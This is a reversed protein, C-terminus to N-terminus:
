PARVSQGQQHPLRSERRLEPSNSLMEGSSLDSLVEDLARSCAYESDAPASAVGLTRGVTNGQSPDGVDLLSGEELVKEAM